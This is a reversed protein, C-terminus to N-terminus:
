NGGAWKGTQLEDLFQQRCDPAMRRIWKEEVWAAISEAANDVGTDHAAIVTSVDEGIFEALMVFAEMAEPGAGTLPWHRVFPWLKLCIAEAQEARKADM